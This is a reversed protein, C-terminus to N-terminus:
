KSQPTWGTATPAPTRWPMLDDFYGKAALRKPVPGNFHVQCPMSGTAKCHIRNDVMEYDLDLRRKESAYLASGEPNARFQAFEQQPTNPDMGFESFLRAHRDLAILEPHHLYMLSWYYQNSWQYRVDIQSPDVRYEPDVDLHPLVTAPPSTPYRVLLDLIAGAEGIFGGGNLFRFPTASPPYSRSFGRYPWCNREATFVIPSDFSAYKSVIEAEAAVFMSDYGDSFLVLEKPALTPLYERLMDDRLRHSTWEGTYVLTVLELEHYKCSAELFRKFGVNTLDSVCTVIQM